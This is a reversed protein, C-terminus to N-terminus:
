KILEAIAALEAGVQRVGISNTPMTCSSVRMFKLMDVGHKKAAETLAQCPGTFRRTCDSLTASAYAQYIKPWEQRQDNTSNYLLPQSM